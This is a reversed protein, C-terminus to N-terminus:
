HRYVRRKTGAFEGKQAALRWSNACPLLLTFNNSKKLIWFTVHNCNYGHLWKWRSNGSNKTYIVAKEM